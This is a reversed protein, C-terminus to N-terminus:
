LRFRGRRRTHLRHSPLSPKRHNATSQPPKPSEPKPHQAPSSRLRNCVMAFWRLGDCVMAFEERHEGVIQVIEAGIHHAERVAKGDM